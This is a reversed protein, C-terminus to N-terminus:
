PCSVTPCDVGDAGHSAPPKGTFREPQQAQACQAAAKAAAPCGQRALAEALNNWGAGIGPFHRTMELYRASADAWRGRQFAVNGLGLLAAPQDPWTTWATHYATQAADLQGTAELDNAALLFDLPQATAPLTDAPLMVRAWREARGWTAMFAELPQEYYAETGSHLILTETRPDYGIVVAFHWQPWWGFRLNQLVLVPHGADIERLLTELEPALPYVLLGFQRAAAVMEVQLAGEREPLYVRDVLQEPTAEVGQTNVMMALSAPGCQYRAQPYFPVRTLLQRTAAPEQPPWQPTSACGALLLPLLLMSLRMFFVARTLVTKTRGTTQM